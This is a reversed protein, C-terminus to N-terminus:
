TTQEKGAFLGRVWSEWREQLKKFAVVLPAGSLLAWALQTMVQKGLAAPLPAGPASMLLFVVLVANEILVAVLVMLPLLAFHGVHLMLTAARAVLFLWCYITLYLAFPSGSLGDMLLGVLIITVLGERLPRYLGCYLAFPVALDYFGQLFPVGAMITTQLVFLALVIIAYLCYNL